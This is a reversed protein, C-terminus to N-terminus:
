KRYHQIPLSDLVMYVNPVCALMLMLRHQGAIMEQALAAKM